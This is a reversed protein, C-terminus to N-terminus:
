DKPSDWWVPISPLDKASYWGDTKTSGEVTAGIANLNDVNYNLESDPVRWRRPQKGSPIITLADADNYYEYPVHYALFTSESFDYRRMDNWQEISFMMAIHKQTMIKALTIDAATGIGDNLFTQMDEDTMPVFSPCDLLAPDEAVWAQLKANMQDMHAKIGNRYAEFAGNSDGRRMLVEAKIFCAEAYTAIYSQSSARSYFSGSTASREDGKGRLNDAYMLLSTGGYYGKSGSRQHIYLTDGLRNEDTHKIYFHAPETDTAAAWSTAVPGSNMRINTNMDLGISRRWRGDASWRLGEPSTEAKQSRAWPIVKDGRPDMVGNGAFNDFNDVAFQTIFYNSNMGIVSYLPHYLVQENWNLVDTTTGKADVHNVLMNDANSQQAKALCALIEQADWKLDSASGEGKRTLKNLWRAKLLYASKLWVDASGRGWYDDVSLPKATPEQPMSLYEIARDLDALCQTYVERGTDYRPVTSESLADSYPVESFIDAMIMFGYAKIFYAAGVYHWAGAETASTIMPELNPAAGNFWWQFVNTCRWTNIAWKSLKGQNGAPNNNAWDGTQLCTAMGAINYTHNTYFEIWALRTYYPATQDSPSNPNDNVDLWDNCGSLSILGLASLIISKFIKM